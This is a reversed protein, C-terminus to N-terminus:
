KNKLILFLGEPDPQARPTWTASPDCTLWLSCSRSQCPVRPSHLAVGMGSFFFFQSARSFFLHESGKKGHRDQKATANEWIISVWGVANRRSSRRKLWKWRGRRRSPETAAIAPFFSKLAFVKKKTEKKKNLTEENRHRPQRAGQVGISPSAGTASGEGVGDVSGTVGPAFSAWCRERM